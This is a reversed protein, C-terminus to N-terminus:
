FFTIQKGDIFTLFHRQKEVWDFNKKLPLTIFRLLIKIEVKESELLFAGSFLLVTEIKM